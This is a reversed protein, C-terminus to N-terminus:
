NRNEEIRRIDNAIEDAISLVELKEHSVLIPVTDTVVVKTIFPCDQGLVQKANGALHTVVAFIEKPKFQSLYEGVKKLTGGSATEDDVIAIKKGEIREMGNGGVLREIGESDRAKKMIGLQIDANGRAASLEDRFKTADKQFGADPSVIAEVGQNKLFEILKTRGTLESSLMNSFLALSQPAHARVVTIGQTGVAKILDAALAGSAAAGVDYEPKDGRAYPLYPSVLHATIGQQRFWRLQALTAFLDENVPMNYGMIWYVQQARLSKERDVNHLEDFTVPTKQLARAIDDRLAPYNSSGIMYDGRVSPLEDFKEKKLDYKLHGAYAHKAGAAFLLSELKLYHAYKGTISIENVKKQAYVDVVNAGFSVSARIKLLVEMLTNYNLESPLVVVVDQKVVQPNSQVESKKKPALQVHTNTNDFHWTKDELFKLRTGRFLTESTKRFEDMEKQGDNLGLVVTGAFSKFTLVCSLAFLGWRCVKANMEWM